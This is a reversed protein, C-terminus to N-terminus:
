MEVVLCDVVHDFTQCLPQIGALGHEDGLAIQELELPQSIQLGAAEHGLHHQFMRVSHSQHVLVKHVRAAVDHLCKRYM